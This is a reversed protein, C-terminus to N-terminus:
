RAAEHSPALLGKARLWEYLRDLWGDVPGGQGTVGFPGKVDDYAHLEVPRGAAKWASFLAVCGATVNPHFSGVAIFLPPAYAPVFVDQQSPGYVSVLFDPYADGKEALATGIVTGGGASFGMIGLRKPDVRWEAARRRIIRMAQQADAVSMRIVANLPENDPAPNANANRIEIEKAGPRGPAPAAPPPAGAPPSAPPPVPLTRYKLVFAAIGKGNLWRAAEVTADWSLFRFAGGPCIVVGAGNAASPAPLYVTFSPDSVNSIRGATTTEPLTWSESGPAKGTWIRVEQPAATPAQGSPTGALLAPAMLAAALCRAVPSRLAAHVPHPTVM